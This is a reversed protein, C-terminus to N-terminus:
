ETETARSCGLNPAAIIREELLGLDVLKGHADPLWKM